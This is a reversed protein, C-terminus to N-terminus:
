PQKIGVSVVGKGELLRRTRNGETRTAVIFFRVTADQDQGDLDTQLDAQPVVILGWHSSDNLYDLTVWSKGDSDLLVTADDDDTQVQLRIDSLEYPDGAPDKWRIPYEFDSDLNFRLTEQGAM